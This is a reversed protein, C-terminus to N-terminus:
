NPYPKIKLHTIVIEVPQAGLALNLEIVKHSPLVKVCLVVVMHEMIAQSMQGGPCHGNKGPGTPRGSSSDGTANSHSMFPGSMSLLLWPSPGSLM